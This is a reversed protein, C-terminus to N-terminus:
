PREATPQPWTATPSPRTRECRRGRRLNPPRAGAPLEPRHAGDYKIGPGHEGQKPPFPGGDFDDTSVDVLGHAPLRTEDDAHDIEAFYQISQYMDFSGCGRSTVDCSEPCTRDLYRLHALGYDHIGGRQLGSM